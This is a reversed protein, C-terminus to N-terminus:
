CETKSICGGFLIRQALCLTDKQLKGFSAMLCLVDQAPCVQLKWMRFSSGACRYTLVRDFTAVLCKCAHRAGPMYRVLCIDCAHRAGAMYRVLCKARTGLVLWIDCWAYIAGPM